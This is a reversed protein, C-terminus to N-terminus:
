ESYCYENTVLRRVEAMKQDLEDRSVSTVARSILAQGMSEPDPRMPLVLYL